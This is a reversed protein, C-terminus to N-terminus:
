NDVWHCDQESNKCVVFVLHERHEQRDLLHEVITHYERGSDSDHSAITTSGITYTIEINSLENNTIKFVSTVVVM